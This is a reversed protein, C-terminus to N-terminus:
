AGEGGTPAIEFGISQVTEVHSFYARTLAESLDALRAQTGALLDVLMAMAERDVTSGAREVDFLEVATLAARAIKQEPQSLPRIDRRALRDLHDCIIQLQFLVSRPNTEDCMLLDLVPAAQVAAMYRTRYTISSDCLELLLRLWPESGQGSAAFVDRVVSTGHVAREIRRGLDLFRWGSGRTMNESAMGHFAACVGITHDMGELLRDADGPQGELRLRADRLLENVVNWMDASLRDRVTPAIRQIAQFLHSLGQDLGCAHGMAEIMSRGDPLGGMAREVLGRDGLMRALTQFEALERASSGGAPVRMLCARMLRAANDLREAYRGLWYLNDAVRSQLEGASRRLPERAAPKRTEVVVPVVDREIVWTDKAAGGRQMSIDIGSDDAAVRTMGGPMPVYSGEHRVLFCRVMLPRPVLGDPTWVPMASKPLRAQAVYRHPRQALREVFAKRRAPDVQSGVTAPELADGPFCPRFVYDELRATVQEFVQRQGLWWTEVSPLGLDEGLLKTALGPLFPLLAPTEVVGAGLANAIAVSGARVADVLGAVGIASESRLEVPDCYDDDLRRLIVDVQQLGGLTKLFVKADRVTLDAGEALTLGLQRALYVHEFYTESYPGPTLLVIRPNERHRPALQALAAQWIDFFSGLRRVASSQFLEPLTRMLVNRNELAYGAGSPANVRDACVRWRGDLGRALDAAYFHLFPAGNAPAIGHCPRLFAPNAHVLAPPLLRDRILTQPGYIDALIRDLLTARRVLATEIGSWEEAPIPLPILDFQWPRQPGRTEAFVNYTVGNEDYQRRARDVREALAGQPLTRMAGMLPQWHARIQGGGTVMEDFPPLEAEAPAPGAAERLRAEEM